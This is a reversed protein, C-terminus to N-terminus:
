VNFPTANTSVNHHMRRGEAAFDNGCRQRSKQGNMRVEKEIINPVVTHGAKLCKNQMGEVEPFYILFNICM